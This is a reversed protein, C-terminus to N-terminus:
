ENVFAAIEKRFNWVLLGVYALVMMTLAYKLCTKTWHNSPVANLSMPMIVRLPSANFRLTNELSTLRANLGIIDDHMLRTQQQMVMGSQPTATIISKRSKELYEIRRLSDLMIIEEKLVVINNQISSLRTENSTKVYNDNSLYTIISSTIDRIFLSDYAEVEVCFVSSLVSHKSYDEEDEFNVDYGVGLSDMPYVFHPKIEVLKELEQENIGLRKALLVKDETKLASLLNHYDSSQCVHAHLLMSGTYKKSLCLPVLISMIVGLIAAGAIFYWKKLAFKILFLFPNWAYQVFLNWAWKILDLLDYEQNEM